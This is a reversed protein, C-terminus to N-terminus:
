ETREQEPIVRMVKVFFVEKDPATVTMEFGKECNKMQERLLFDWAITSIVEKPIPIKEKADMIGNSSESYRTAIYWEKSLPSQAIVPKQKNNM